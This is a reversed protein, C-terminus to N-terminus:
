KGLLMEFAIKAQLPVVANGLAKLQEMRFSIGNALRGVQSEIKWFRCCRAFDKCAWKSKEESRKGFCRSNAVKDKSKEFKRESRRCALMFWRKREHLAGVSEASIICWRCDYGMSSVEKVVKNGGRSIIAPVNEFFIFKPKYERCLRLMEYFLGSRQGELGKGNGAISIDQCPFGGYIIEIKNKTINSIEKTSLTKIDDWIPAQPLSKEQMRQLLISQCYTEIECYAVPEVYQSLAVDLGGIGSFLSLGKLKM